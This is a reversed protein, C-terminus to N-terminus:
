TYTDAPGHDLQGSTRVPSQNNFLTFSDNVIIERNSPLRGFYAIWTRRHSFEHSHVCSTAYDFKRCLVLSQTCDPELPKQVTSDFVKLLVRGTEHNKGSM